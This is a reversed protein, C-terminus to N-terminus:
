ELAGDAWEFLEGILPSDEAIVGMHDRGPYEHVVVDRGAQELSAALRRQVEIPITEDDVGQGLFLPASVIGDAANELLRERVPGADLSLRFLPEDRSIAVASLVSSLMTMDSTCRGAMADVVAGGAFNVIDDFVVDDYEDAYPVLVFPTAVSAIPGISLVHESVALPDAAASLAAVGRVNLEPAYDDAIQGAWLTAHGGQSHGWLMVEDSAGAEPIQQVARVGDLTARGEGEGILYPYRGATGMGPYDTAVVVWGQDIARGIGPIAEETLANPLTSPACAQAIGTTGHQWALVVRSADDARDSSPFAVVASVLAPSGDRYTSSYLIRHAQAGAPVEGDYPAVRLLTGPTAPIEAAYHYFDDVRDISAYLAVSGAALGTSTVALAGVAVGAVVRRVGGRRPRVDSPASAPPASGRRVEKVVTAIGWVVAGVALAFGAGLVALDPWSVTLVAAAAGIVLWGIVTWTSRRGVGAAARVATWGGALAVVLALVMPLARAFVTLNMGLWVTMGLGIAAAAVRWGLRRGGPARTGWLLTLGGAAAPVAAALLVVVGLSTLPRPLLYAGLLALTLGAM